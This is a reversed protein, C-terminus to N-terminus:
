LDWFSTCDQLALLSLSSMFGHYVSDLDDAAALKIEILGRCCPSACILRNQTLQPLDVM